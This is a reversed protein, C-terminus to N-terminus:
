RRELRRASGDAGGVFVLDAIDIFLGTEIVGPIAILRSALRGPEHIAGLALDLIFHGGDTVFPEDRALRLAIGAGDQGMERLTAEVIARTTEWGFPVVEVPLPFAGLVAVEKSADAIVAM